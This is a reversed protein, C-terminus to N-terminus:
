ASRRVPLPILQGTTGCMDHEVVIAQTNVQRSLAEDLRRVHHRWTEDPILGNRRLRDAALVNARLQELSLRIPFDIVDAPM